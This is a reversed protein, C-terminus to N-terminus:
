APTVHQWLQAISEYAKVTSGKAIPHDIPIFVSLSLLEPGASVAGGGSGQRKVDLTM